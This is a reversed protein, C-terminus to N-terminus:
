RDGNERDRLLRILNRATWGLFKAIVYLVVALWFFIALRSGIQATAATTLLVVCFARFILYGKGWEQLRPHGREAWMGVLFWIPFSVSEQILFWFPDWPQKRTPIYARPRTLSTVITALPNGADLFVFEPSPERHSFEWGPAGAEQLLAVPRVVGVAADAKMKGFLAYTHWILLALAACDILLHGLPLLWRFPIRAM